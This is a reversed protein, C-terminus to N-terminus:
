IKTSAQQATKAKLVRKIMAEREALKFAFDELEKQHTFNINQIFNEKEQLLNQLDVINQWSEQGYKRIQNTEKELNVRSQREHLLEKKLSKNKDILARHFLNCYILKMNPTVCM